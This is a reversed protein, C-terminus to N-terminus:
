VLKYLEFKSGIDIGSAVSSVIDLHTVSTSTFTSTIYIDSIANSSGGYYHQNTNQNTIYGDNTLKIKSISFSGIYSPHIYIYYPFNERSGSVGTGSASLTQKYYNSNTTNNNAYLATWGGTGMADSVLLYENGKGINLGSFQVSTVASGTVEVEDVKKAVKYIQIRTGIGLGSAANSVIDLQTISSFTNTSTTYWKELISSSGVDTNTMVNSLSIFYGDNTLRLYQKGVSTQGSSAEIFKSYNSRFGGVTADNAYLAQTYYNTATQDNNAYISAYLSSNTDLTISMEYLEGKQIPTSSLDITVTNTASSVTYDYILPM